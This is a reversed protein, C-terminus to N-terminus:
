KIYGEKFAMKLGKSSLVLDELDDGSVYQNSLLFIFDQKYNEDNKIKNRVNVPCPFNTALIEILSKEKQM